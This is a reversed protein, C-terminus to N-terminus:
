FLFYDAVLLTSVVLVIMTACGSKSRASVIDSRVRDMFMTGSETLLSKGAKGNDVKAAVWGNGQCVAYLAHTKISADTQELFQDKSKVNLLSEAILVPKLLDECYMGEVRLRAKRNTLHTMTALLIKQLETVRCKLHKALLSYVAKGNSTLVIYGTRADLRALGIVVIAAIQSTIKDLNSVADQAGTKIKLVTVGYNFEEKALRGLAYFLGSEIQSDLELEIKASWIEFSQGAKLQEGELVKDNFERHATLVYERMESFEDEDLVSFRDSSMLELIAYESKTKGSSMLSELTDENYISPIMMAEDNERLCSSKLKPLIQRLDRAIEDTLVKMEGVTEFDTFRLGEFLLFGHCVVKTVPTGILNSVKFSRLRKRM